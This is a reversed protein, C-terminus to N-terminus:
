HNTAGASPAATPTRPTPAPTVPLSTMPPVAPKPALEPHKMILERARVGAEEGLSSNARQQYIGEYLEAAEALKGQDEYLRALAFRAQPATNETSRHEAINKYATVAENTKGQADLCAAIGLLAQGTFSTEPYQQLYKEFQTQAEAFKGEGFLHGAALLLARQGAGTNAHDAAVKLLEDASMPGPTVRTLTQSLQSNADTEKENHQWAIFGVIVAVAVIGSITWILRKKNTEAWAWAKYLFALQTVDSEM